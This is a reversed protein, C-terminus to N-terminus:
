QSLKWIECQIHPYMINFMDCLIEYVIDWSGGGLGCGIQYPIAISYLKFTNCFRAVDDLAQTLAVYNTYRKNRGYYEQGFLNIVVKYDNIMTHSTKGLLDKSNTVSKCLRNYETYVSPYKDKIQKALGGGMVGQCNVQHCIIAADTELIDGDKLFIM